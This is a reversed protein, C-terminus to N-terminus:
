IWYKYQWEALMEMGLEYGKNEIEKREEKSLLNPDIDQGSIRLATIESYKTDPKGFEEPIVYVEVKIDPIFYMDRVLTYEFDVKM